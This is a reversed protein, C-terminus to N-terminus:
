VGYEHALTDFLTVTAVDWEWGVAKVFAWGAIRAPDLALRRAFCAIQLRIVAVPDPSRLAAISRNHLWQALDFAPDGVFPKPDIVLWPERQSALVNGPHFDGHLLVEPPQSAALLQGCAVARAAVDAGYGSAGAIRPMDHLWGAVTDTVSDFPADPGPPHWLRALLTAAIADADEAPVDWLAMGPRCRELLLSFGDDSARLLRVAGDGDLVRLAHAEFRAEPHPLGIKLIAESGDRCEVPAVWSVAGSHELAPGAQIAWERELAAIRDPLADLWRAGEAGFATVNSQLGASIFVGM